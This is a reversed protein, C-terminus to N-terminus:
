KKKVPSGGRWKCLGTLSSWLLEKGNVTEVGQDDVLDIQEPMFVEVHPNALASMPGKMTGFKFGPVGTCMIVIPWSLQTPKLPFFSFSLFFVEMMCTFFCCRLEQLMPFRKDQASRLPDSLYDFRLVVDFLSRNNPWVERLIRFLFSFPLINKTGLHRLSLLLWLLDTM